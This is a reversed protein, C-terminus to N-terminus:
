TLQRQPNLLQCYIFVKRTEKEAKLKLKEDKKRKESNENKRNDAKEDTRSSACSNGGGSASSTLHYASRSTSPIADTKINPSASINPISKPKIPAVKATLGLKPNSPTVAGLLPVTEHSSPKQTYSAFRCALEGHCWIYICISSLLSGNFTVCDSILM